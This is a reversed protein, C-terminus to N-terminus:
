NGFSLPSLFFFFPGEKGEAECKEKERERRQPTLSHPLLPLRRVFSSHTEGKLLPLLFFFKQTRSLLSPFLSKRAEESSAHFHVQRAPRKFFKGGFNKISAFNRAPWISNSKPLHLDFALLRGIKKHPLLSLKAVRKILSCAGCAQKRWRVVPQVTSSQLQLFILNLAPTQM